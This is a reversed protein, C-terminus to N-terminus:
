KYKHWLLKLAKTSMELIGFGKGNSNILNKPDGISVDGEQTISTMVGVREYTDAFLSKTVKEEEIEKERKIDARKQAAIARRRKRLDEDRRQRSREDADKQRQILRLQEPTLEKKKGAHPDGIMKTKKKKNRRRSALIELLNPDLPGTSM